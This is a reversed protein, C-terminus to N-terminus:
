ERGYFRRYGAILLGGLALMLVASPEPIVTVEAGDFRTGYWGGWNKYDRGGVEFVVYRIGTEYGSFTTGIWHWDLDTGYSSDVIPSGQSGLAYSTMTNHDADQLTINLFYQGGWYNNVYVGAEIEPSADLTATGFGKSLLDISQNM